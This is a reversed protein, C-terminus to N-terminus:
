NIKPLNKARYFTELSQRDGVFRWHWPEYNVGQPNNKTFSLEFSYSSANKELWQFAKTNEFDQNLNTSPANADGIDIAYGTHHESYGPPASVEARKSVVQGRQEKVKFFLQNQEEVTRFASIISLNVGDRRAAEQMQLFKDAAAERLKFHGDSSIAKLESQPAEEYSLHGLLEDSNNPNNVSNNNNNNNTKTLNNNNNSNEQSSISPRNLFILSIITILILLLSSGLFLNSKKLNNKQTKPPSIVGSRVAQPLDDMTQDLSEIKLEPEFQTEKNM